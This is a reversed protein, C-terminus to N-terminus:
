LTWFLDTKKTMLIKLKRNEISDSGGYHVYKEGELKNIGKFQISLGQPAPESTYRCHATAHGMDTGTTCRWLVAELIKWGTQTNENLTCSAGCATWNTLRDGKPAGECSRTRCIIRWFQWNNRQMITPATTKDLKKSDAPIKAKWPSHHNLVIPNTQNHKHSITQNCKHFSFKDLLTWIQEKFYDTKRKNLLEYGSFIFLWFFKFSVRWDYLHQFPSFCKLVYYTNKCKLLTTAIM